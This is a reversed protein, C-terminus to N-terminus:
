FSLSSTTNVIKEVSFLNKKAYHQAVLRYKYGKTATVSKTVSCFTAENYLDEFVKYDIWDGNKYQQLKIYTFGSKKVESTGKTIAKIILNNGDKALSLTKTTILGTACISIDNDIANVHELKYFDDNSIYYDYALPENDLSENTQAFATVNMTVLTLIVLLLSLIKKM